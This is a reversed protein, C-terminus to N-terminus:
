PGFTFLRLAYMLASVCETFAVNGNDMKNQSSEFCNGRLTVLLASHYKAYKDALAAELVEKYGPLKDSHDILTSGKPTYYITKVVKSQTWCM